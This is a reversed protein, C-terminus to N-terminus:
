ITGDASMVHCRRRFLHHKQRTSMTHMHLTQFLMRRRPKISARDTMLGDRIHRFPISRQIHSQCLVNHRWLIDVSHRRNQTMVTINLTIHREMEHVMFARRTLPIVRSHQCLEIPWRRRRRRSRSRSRRSRSRSRRSRAAVRQRIM